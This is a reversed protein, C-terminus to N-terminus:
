IPNKAQIGAYAIWALEPEGNGAIIAEFWDIM